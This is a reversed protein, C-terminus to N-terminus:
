YFIQDWEKKWGGLEDLVLNSNMTTVILEKNKVEVSLNDSVSELSNMKKQINKSLLYNLYKYSLEINKSDKSVAAMQYVVTNTIQHGDTVRLYPMRQILKEATSTGVVAVNIQKKEFLNILETQNKYIRTYAELERLARFSDQGHNEVEDSVYSSTSRYHDYDNGLYIIAPGFKTTIDPLAISKVQEQNWLDYFFYPPGIRRSDYVMSLREMSLPVSNTEKALKQQENSLYKFNAIRKYDLKKFRGAKNEKATDLQSLEIIDANKDDTLLNINSNNKKAFPRIINKEFKSSTVNSSIALKTKDSNCGSITFCTLLSIVILFIRKKM